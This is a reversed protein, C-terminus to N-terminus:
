TIKSRSFSKSKVIKVQSNHRPIADTFTSLHSVYLMIDSMHCTRSKAKDRNKGLYAGGGCVKKKPQKYIRVASRFIRKGNEDM